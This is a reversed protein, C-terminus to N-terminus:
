RPRFARRRWNARFAGAARPPEGGPLAALREHGRWRSGRRGLVAADRRLPPLDVSHLEGGGNVRLAALLFASSVGHAVGTEVVAEPKRLRCLLYCSRAFVVDATWRTEFPDEESIGGLMERVRSEVEALASERLIEWDECFIRDIDAVAEAFSVADYRAGPKRIAESALDLYGCARDYAEVPRGPALAALRLLEAPLKGYARGSM